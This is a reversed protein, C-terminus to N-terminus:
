FSVRSIEVALRSLPQAHARLLAHVLIAWREFEHRHLAHLLALVDTLQRFLQSQGSRATESASDGSPAKFVM